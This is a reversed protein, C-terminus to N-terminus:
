LCVGDIIEGGDGGDACRVLRSGDPAQPASACSAVVALAIVLVSLRYLVAPGEQQSGAM